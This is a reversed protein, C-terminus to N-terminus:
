IKKQLKFNKSNKLCGLNIFMSSQSRMYSFCFDEHYFYMNDAYLLEFGLSLLSRSKWNVHIKEKVPLFLQNEKKIVLKLLDSDM